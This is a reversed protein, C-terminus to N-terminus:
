RAFLRAGLAAAHRGQLRATELELPTPQRAGDPGALTTAGYPSGGSVADGAHLGPASPPVGVVLMGLGLLVTHFSLL